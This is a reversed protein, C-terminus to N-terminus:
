LSCTGFPTGLKKLKLQRRCLGNRTHSRDHVNHVSSVPASGRPSSEHRDADDGRHRATRFVRRYVLISSSEGHVASAHVAELIRICPITRRHGVGPDIKTLSFTALREAKGPLTLTVDQEETSEALDLRTVTAGLKRRPPDLPAAAKQALFPPVIAEDVHTLCALVLIDAVPHITAADERGPALLRTLGLDPEAIRVLLGRRAAQAIEEDLAALHALLAEPYVALSESTM